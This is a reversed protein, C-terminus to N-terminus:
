GFLDPEVHTPAAGAFQRFDRVLHAQDTYNCQAAVDVWRTGGAAFRMARRFRGIRELMKPGLGTRERFVRAWQRDSYGWEVRAERSLLHGDGVATALLDIASPRAPIRALLLREVLEVRQETTSADLLRDTLARAFTGCIDGLSVVLGAAETQPFHTFAWGGAPTFRIGFVGVRGASHVVLPSTLQGAYLARGQEQGDTFFPAGYHFVMEPRGDPYIAQPGDDCGEM